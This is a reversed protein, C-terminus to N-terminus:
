VRMAANFDIIVGLVVATIIMDGLFVLLGHTFPGVKRELISFLLFEINALPWAYVFIQLGFVSLNLPVCALCMRYDRTVWMSGIAGTVGVANWAILGWKGGIWGMAYVGLGYGLVFGLNFIPITSTELILITFAIIIQRTLIYLKITRSSSNKFYNPVLRSLPWQALFRTFVFIGGAVLFGSIAAEVLYLLSITGLSWSSWSQGRPHTTTNTILPVTTTPTVAASSSIPPSSEYRFTLISGDGGSGGPGGNPGANGGEGGSVSINGLSYGGAGYVLLVTGGGGGGGGGSGSSDGNQGRADITGAVIVNAQIFVGYAGSGGASGGLGSCASGSGAGGGGGGGALFSQMGLNYWKEILATTIIPPSSSHGEGGPGGIGCSGGSESGPSGGSAQTSGGSGSAQAAGLTIAASGGGGGGSGGYSYPVSGGDTASSPAESAGLGGNNVYGTVITGKNTFTGSCYFNFGNSTVTVGPNIVLDTCYVDSTLTTNSSFTLPGVSASVADVPVAVVLFATLLLILPISVYKGRIDARTQRV